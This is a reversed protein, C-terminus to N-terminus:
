GNTRLLQHHGSPKADKGPVKSTLDRVPHPSAKTCTSAIGKYSTWMCTYHTCLLVLCGTMECVTGATTYNSSYLCLLGSFLAPQPFEVLAHPRVSGMLVMTKFVLPLQGLQWVWPMARRLYVAPCIRKELM